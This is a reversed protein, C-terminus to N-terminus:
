TTDVLFSVVAEEHIHKFKGRGDNPIMRIERM